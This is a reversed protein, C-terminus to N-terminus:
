AASCRPRRSARMSITRKDLAPELGDLHVRSDRIWRMGQLQALAARRVRPDTKALALRPRTHPPGDILTTAYAARPYMEAVVMRSSELLTDLDGDFPWVTFPRSPKLTDRLAMWVDCAASGVSGPIGATVFAPKAGTRADIRRLLSPVGADAVATLYSTLGGTGAPVAFFPRDVSWERANSTAAFFQPAHTTWQLLDLFTPPTSLGAHRAWQQLYGSPVGLPLDLAVLVPGRDAIREAGALLDHLTWSRHTLRRVVPAATHRLIRQRGLARQKHVQIGAIHRDEAKPPEQAPVLRQEDSQPVPTQDAHRVRRAEGHLRLAGVLRPGGRVLVRRRDPRVVQQGIESQSVGIVGL